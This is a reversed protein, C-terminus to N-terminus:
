SLHLSNKIKSKLLAIKYGFTNEPENLPGNFIKGRRLYYRSFTSNTLRWKNLFQKRGNNKQIRKTSHSIFHYVRSKGLGKFYRVGIKWLKMSFDPDSYMGPSYEISYGGVLDWIKKAVINPPWTAGCWDNKKFKEFDNLLSKENFNEVTKGYDFSSLKCKNSKSGKPEIATASLFFYDHGIKKIEDFLFKDWLPLAYMDDNMYCIYKTRVLTTAVNMALCIGINQKSFTHDIKNKEAWKKTGDSNENIHLIIQHDFTSNKRISNVCLKLM